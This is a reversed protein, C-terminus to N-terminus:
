LGPLICFVGGDRYLRFFETEVYTGGAHIFGFLSTESSQPCLSVYAFPLGLVAAVQGAATSKGTGPDGYMYVDQGTAILNLLKDFHKHPHSINKVSEKDPYKIELRTVFKGDGFVEAVKANVHALIVDKDIRNKEIFGELAAELLSGKGNKSMTEEM